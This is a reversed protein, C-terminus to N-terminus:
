DLKINLYKQIDAIDVANLSILEGFGDDKAILYNGCIVDYGLDLTPELNLLKGEENCILILAPNFDMRLIEIYGGVIQQLSRLSNEIEEVTCKQGVRKTIVMINEM